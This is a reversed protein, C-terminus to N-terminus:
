PGLIDALEDLRRDEVGAARSRAIVARAGEADGVRTLYTALNAWAANASPDLEVARAAAGIAADWDGM